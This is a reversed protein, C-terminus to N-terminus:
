KKFIFDGGEDGTQSIVGYLPTQDLPSNNIVAERFDLFLSQADLYRKSNRELAKILYQAFVSKDPVTKLAGSTIAKRSPLKYIQKISEDPENFVSRTKFIGGSFCADSILLTHKSPIARLYDSVTSNSIWDTPDDKKADKLLWYGQEMAEDWYGHGAYYVLLNDDSSVTNRLGTLAQILERRTPNELLVSKEKVFTYNEILTEYVAAADDYAYELDNIGSDTYDEVGIVLAYYDGIIFPKETENVLNTEPIEVTDAAREITYNKQTV